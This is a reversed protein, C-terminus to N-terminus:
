LRRELDDLRGRLYERFEAPSLRIISELEPVTRSPLDPTPGTREMHDLQAVIEEQGLRGSHLASRIHFMERPPGFSPHYPTRPRAGLGARAFAVGAAVVALAAAPIALALNPGAWVALGTAGLAVAPLVWGIPSNM